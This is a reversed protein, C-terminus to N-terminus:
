FKIPTTKQKQKQKQLIIPDYPWLAKHKLFSKEYKMRGMEYFYLATGNQQLNYFKDNECIEAFSVCIGCKIM